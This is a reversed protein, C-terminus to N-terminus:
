PVDFNLEKKGPYDIATQYTEFLPEGFPRTEPNPDVGDGGAITVILPGTVVGREGAIEYRGDKIRSTGQPGTNGKSRDPQVTVKGSPVLAGQHTM